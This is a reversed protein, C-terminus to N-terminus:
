ENRQRRLNVVSDVVGITLAMMATIPLYLLLVAMIVFKVVKSVKWLQVYHMIVAIGLIFFIFAAIYLINKGMLEMFQWSQEDGGITLALGIIILWISYWPLQWKTFSFGDPM